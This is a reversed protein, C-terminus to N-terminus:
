PHLQDWPTIFDELRQDPPIKLPIGALFLPGGSNPTPLAPPCQGGLRRPNVAKQGHGFGYFLDWEMFFPATLGRGAETGAGPDINPNRGRTDRDEAGAPGLRTGWAPTDCTWSHFCIIGTPRPNPPAIAPPGDRTKAPLLATPYRDLNEVRSDTERGPIRGSPCIVGLLPGPPVQIEKLVFGTQM